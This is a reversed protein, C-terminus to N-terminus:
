STGCGECKGMEFNRACQSMTAAMSDLAQAFEEVKFRMPKNFTWVLSQPGTVNIDAITYMKKMAVDAKLAAVMAKPDTVSKFRALIAVRGDGRLGTAILFNKKFGILTGEKSMFPGPEAYRSLGAAQAIEQMPFSM